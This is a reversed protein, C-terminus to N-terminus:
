VTKPPVTLFAAWMYSILWLYLFYFNIFGYASGKGIALLHVLDM